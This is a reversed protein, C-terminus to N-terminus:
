PLRFMIERRAFEVVGRFLVYGAPRKGLRIAADVELGPHMRERDAASMDVLVQLFPEQGDAAISLQEAIKIVDGECVSTSSSVLTCRAKLPSAKLNAALLRPVYKAPVQVEAQWPSSPDMVDLLHQGRQVPRDRLSDVSNWSVVKGNIPSSITLAERRHQLQELQKKLHQLQLKTEEVRAANEEARESRGDPTSRAALLAAMAETQVGIEGAIEEYAMDLELSALQLLPQGALVDDGDNVAINAVISDEIAYIHRQEQPVLRGKASVTFEVNWFALTLVIGITVFTIGALLRRGRQIRDFPKSLWRFPINAVTFANVLSRSSALSIRQSDTLTQKPLPETFSEAVLFAIPVRQHTLRDIRNEIDGDGSNTPTTNFIPVLLLHAVLSLDCYQELADQIPPPLSNGDDPFAIATGWPASRSAASELARMSGSQRRVAHSGSIALVRCRKDRYSLVAIRDVELMAHASNALSYALQRPDLFHQLSEVLRLLDDSTLRAGPRKMASSPNAKSTDPTAM